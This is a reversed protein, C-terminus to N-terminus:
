AASHERDTGLAHRRAQHDEITIEGDALRRDLIEAPSERPAADAGARQAPTGSRVAWILFAVLAVLAVVMLVAQGWGMDHM